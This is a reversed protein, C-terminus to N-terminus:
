RLFWHLLEDAGMGAFFFAILALGILLWGGDDEEVHEVVVWSGDEDQYARRVRPSISMLKQADM